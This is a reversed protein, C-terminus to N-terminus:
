RVTPAFTFRKPPVYPARKASQAYLHPVLARARERCEEAWVTLGDAEAEIANKEWCAARWLDDLRWDKLPVKAHKAQWAALAPTNRPM